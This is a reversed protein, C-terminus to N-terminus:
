LYKILPTIQAALHYHCNTGTMFTLTLLLPHYYVEPKSSKEECKNCRSAIPQQVQSPKYNFTVRSFDPPARVTFCFLALGGERLFGLNYPSCM